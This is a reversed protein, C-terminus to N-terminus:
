RQHPRRSSQPINKNGLLPAWFHEHFEPWVEHLESILEKGGISTSGEHSFYLVFDFNKDTYIYELGDYAFECDDINLEKLLGDERIEILQIVKFKIKIIEKIEEIYYQFFNSDFIEVNEIADDNTIPVWGFDLDCNWKENIMLLATDKDM